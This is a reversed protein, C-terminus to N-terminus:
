RKANISVLEHMEGSTGTMSLAGLRRWRIPVGIHPAAWVTLRLPFSGFRNVITGNSEIVFTDFSGAPTRITERGTIRSKYTITSKM